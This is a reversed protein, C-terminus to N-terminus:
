AAARHMARPLVLHVEIDRKKLLEALAGAHRRGDHDDDVLLTVGEVYGPVVNGLRPLRSASGAAWAGLGTAEHASLADEIGEAIALGLLDNAPALAIPSGLSAGIMIKDTQTGAKASGDAALRTIHVGRVADDPIAFEGPAPEDPLGFAAIMAPAHDGRAPLFALTAPLTGTYGRARRLYCEAISGEIPRRQAWLWRAKGLRELAAIREREEVVKRAAALKAPDPPPASRDRTHGGEGCRACHFTAFREELRWIRLVKRVRNAATRKEPGCFPCALDFQGIRGGVLQNIQDLKM